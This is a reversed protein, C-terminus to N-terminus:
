KFRDTFLEEQINIIHSVLAPKFQAFCTEQAIAHAVETATQIGDQTQDCELKVGTTVEVSFPIKDWDGEGYYVADSVKCSMGGYTSAKPVSSDSRLDHLEITKEKTEMEQEQGKATKSITTRVLAKQSSM